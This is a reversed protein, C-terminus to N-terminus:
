AGLSKGLRHPWMGRHRGRRDPRREWTGGERVKVAVWQYEYAPEAAPAGGATGEHATRAYSHHGNAAQASGAGAASCAPQGQGQGGAAAATPGGHHTTGNNHHHSGGDLDISMMRDGGCYSAETGTQMSCAGGQTSAGGSADHAAASAAPDPQPPQPPVLTRLCCLYVQRRPHTILPVCPPPTQLTLSKCRTALFGSRRPVCAIAASAQVSESQGFSGWGWGVCPQRQEVGLVLMGRGNSLCAVACLSRRELQGSWTPTALLPCSGPGQAVARVLQACYVEGRTAGFARHGRYCTKIVKGFSGTGLLRVPHSYRAPDLGLPHPASFSIQNAM